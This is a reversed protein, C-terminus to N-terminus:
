NTAHENKAKRDDRGWHWAVTSAEYTGVAMLSSKHWVNIDSSKLWVNKCSKVKVFVKSHKLLM